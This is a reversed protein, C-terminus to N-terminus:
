VLRKIKEIINTSSCGDVMEVYSLEGGYQALMEEEPIHKDRYDAGKIWYDPKFKAITECPTPDDFICVYDVCQLGAVVIAREGQPVIPREEGKLGRVSSDSNLLLVLADAKKGAEELYTVHGAHLIDFCGSTAAVTKGKSRLDEAIVVLQDLSVIKDKM